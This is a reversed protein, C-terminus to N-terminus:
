KGGKKGAAPAKRARNPKSEATTKDPKHDATHADIDVAEAGGVSPSHDIEGGTIHSDEDTTPLVSPPLDVNAETDHLIAYLGNICEDCLHLPRALVDGRKTILYRTKNRCGSIDCQFTRSRSEVIKLKIM